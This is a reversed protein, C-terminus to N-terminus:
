KLRLRKSLAYHALLPDFSRYLALFPTSPLFDHEFRGIQVFLELAVMKM